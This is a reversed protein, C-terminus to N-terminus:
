RFPNTTTSAIQRIARNPPAAAWAAGFSLPAMGALVALYTGGKELLIAFPQMKEIVIHGAGDLFLMAGLACVGCVVLRSSIASFATAWVAPLLFAFALTLLMLADVKLEAASMFLYSASLLVYLAVPIQVRRMNKIRAAFFASRRLERNMM